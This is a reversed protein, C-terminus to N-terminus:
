KCSARTPKYPVQIAKEVSNIQELIFDPEELGHSFIVIPILQVSLFIECILNFVAFSICNLVIELRKQLSLQYQLTKYMYKM